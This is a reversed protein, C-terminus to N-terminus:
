EIKECLIRGFGMHVIVKQINGKEDKTFDLQTDGFEKSIGFFRYESEPFLEVFERYPTPVFLKDGKRFIILPVNSFKLKYKGIYRDLAKQGLKITKRPPSPPLMAPIIYHKLIGSPRFTGLSNDWVKSTFVAVLDLSPFVYIAQGGHGSAWYTDIKQNSITVKACRWQFGYGYELDHTTHAKTSETIWEQSIISKGKWKGDNLFLYGLKAMDRPRMHLGGAADLLGDELRDWSYNDIGLPNFLYLEAFENTLMGSSKAIIRTLMVSLMSNYNFVTGPEAIVPKKLLYRISDNSIRAQYMDNAQNLYGYTQEDWDLGASMSLIHRFLLNGKGVDSRIVNEYEPFLELVTKDLGGQSIGGIHNQDMAIGILASAVSKTVSALYHSTDRNYGYFYEEFILKENKVLLISHLNKIDGKLINEMLENIKKPDVGEAKLDSYEWGDDIKEPIQYTYEHQPLGWRTSRPSCSLILVIILCVIYIPKERGYLSIMM